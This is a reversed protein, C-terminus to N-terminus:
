EFTAFETMRKAQQWTDYDYNYNKNTPKTPEPERYYKYLKQKSIILLDAIAFLEKQKLQKGTQHYWYGILKTYGHHHINPYNHKEIEITKMYDEVIDLNFINKCGKVERYAFIAMTAIMRIEREQYYISIQANLDNRQKILKNIM